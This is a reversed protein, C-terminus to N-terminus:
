FLNPNLQAGFRLDSSLSGGNGFINGLLGQGIGVLNGALGGANQGQQGYIGSLNNAGTQLLGSTNNANSQLLANSQSPNGLQALNFLNANQQDYRQTGYARDADYVGTGFGRDQGFVNDTRARDQNYQNLAIQYQQMQANRWDTYDKDQYDSGFKIAAEAGAGSALLGRAGFNANLNRQGEKLGAEYGPSKQYAAASLDPMSPASGVDPREYTQRPDPPAGYTQPTPAAQQGQGNTPYTRQEGAAQANPLQVQAVWEEPSSWQGGAGIVGSAQLERARAAVDPNAQIYASVNVGGAASGPSATPTIGLSQQLQTLAGYGAQLYPALNQQQQQFAQQQAALSQQTAREQAAIQKNATKTAANSSFLSGALGLAGAALLPLM